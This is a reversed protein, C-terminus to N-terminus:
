VLHGDNGFSGVLGEIGDSFPIYMNRSAKSLDKKQSDQIKMLNLEQSKKGNHLPAIPIASLVFILQAQTAIPGSFFLLM